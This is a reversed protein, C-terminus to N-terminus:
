SILRLLVASAVQVIELTLVPQLGAPQCGSSTPHGQGQTMAHIVLFSESDMDAWSTPPCSSYLSRCCCLRTSDSHACYPFHAQLANPELPTADRRSWTDELEM